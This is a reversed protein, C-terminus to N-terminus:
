NKQIFDYDSFLELTEDQAIEAFDHDLTYTKVNKSTSGMKFEVDYKGVDVYIQFSKGYAFSGKSLVKPEEGEKAITIDKIYQGKNKNTIKLMGMPIRCPPIFEIASSDRVTEVYEELDYRPGRGLPSTLSYCVGYDIEVKQHLTFKVDDGQFDKTSPVRWIFEQAYTNTSISLPPPPLKPTYRSETNSSPLNNLTFAYKAIEDSSTNRVDMDQINRKTENNYAINWILPSVKLTDIGIRIQAGLSWSFGTTYTTSGVTTLPTPSHGTPFEGVTKGDKDVLEYRVRIERLYFGCIHTTTQLRKAEDQFLQRMYGQYMKDNTVAVESKILYYDGNSNNKEFAYFPYISHRLTVEGEGEVPYLAIDKKGVEKKVQYPFTISTQQPIILEDIDDTTNEIPPPEEEFFDDGGAQEKECASFFLCSLLSFALISHSYVHKMM